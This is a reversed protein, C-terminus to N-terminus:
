ARPEALQLQMCATAVVKPLSHSRASQTHSRAALPPRLNYLVSAPPCHVPVSSPLQHPRAARPRHQHQTTVAAL